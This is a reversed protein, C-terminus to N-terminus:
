FEYIRALIKGVKSAEPEIGELYYILINTDLATKM